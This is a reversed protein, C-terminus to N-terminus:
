EIDNRKLIRSVTNGHVGVKSGIQAFSLKAKRLKLVEKEIEKTVVTRGDEASLGLFELDRRVDNPGVGIKQAIETKTQGQKALKKVLERRKALTVLDVRHGSRRNPNYKSVTKNSVKAIKAVERTTKGSKLLSKIQEIKEESICRPKSNEFSTASLKASVPLVKVVTNTSIKLKERIERKNLGKQHLKLIKDKLEAEYRDIINEQGM